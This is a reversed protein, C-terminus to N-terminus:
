AVIHYRRATAMLGAVSPSITVVASRETGPAADFGLVVRPHRLVIPLTVSIVSRVGDGNSSSTTRRSAVSTEITRNIPTPAAPAETPCPLGPLEEAPLPQSVGHM